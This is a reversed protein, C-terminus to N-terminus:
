QQPRLNSQHLAGTNCAAFSSTLIGAGCFPWAAPRHFAGPLETPLGPAAAAPLPLFAMKQGIRRGHLHAELCLGALEACFAPPYKAAATTKFGEGSVNLGILSAHKVKHTCLKSMRHTHFPSLVLDTPKVSPAGFMCQHCRVTRLRFIKIFHQMELSAFFSPFPVGPDAPHEFAVWGGRCAIEGLLL